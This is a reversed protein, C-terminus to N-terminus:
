GGRCGPRGCSRPSSAVEYIGQGWQPSVGALMRSRWRMWSFTTMRRSRWSASGRGSAAAARALEVSQTELATALAVARDRAGAALLKKTIAYEPAGEWLSIELVTSGFFTERASPDAGQKLLYEVVDSQQLKTALYLATTGWADGGDVDAGAEVLRKVEALDGSRAALRLERTSDALCVLPLLFLLIYVSWRLM